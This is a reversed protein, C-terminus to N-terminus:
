EDSEFVTAIQTGPYLRAIKPLLYPILIEETYDVDNMDDSLSHVPVESLTADSGQGAYHDRLEKVSYLECAGLDRTASLVLTEDGIADIDTFMDSCRRCPRLTPHQEPNADLDSEDGIVAIGFIHNLNFREAKALAIQEAHLNWGGSEQQPKINMGNTIGMIREKFNYGLVSSGVKYDRWSEALQATRAATRVQWIFTNLSAIAVQSHDYNQGYLPMVADHEQMALFVEPVDKILESM